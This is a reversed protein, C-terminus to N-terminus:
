LAQVDDIYTGGEYIGNSPGFVNVHIRKIYDVNSFQIHSICQTWQGHVAPCFVANGNADVERFFATSGDCKVAEVVLQGYVQSFTMQELMQFRFETKGQWAAGLDPSTFDARWWGSNTAHSQPYGAPLVISGNNDVPDQTVANPVNTRDMWFAPNMAVSQTVTQTDGDFLGQLQFGQATGDDFHFAPSGPLLLHLGCIHIPRPIPLPGIVTLESASQETDSSAPADQTQAACGASLLSAATMAIFGHTGISDRRM